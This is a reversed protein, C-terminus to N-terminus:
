SLSLAPVVSFLVAALLTISAAFSLVRVNFGLNRLFPMGDMREASILGTRLHMTWYAFALGLTSGATVLVLGETAFQRTIRAQSAGLANRVAIERKRSESRVVLLSASVTAKTFGARRELTYWAIFEDLGLNYM